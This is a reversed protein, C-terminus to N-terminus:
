TYHVSPLMCGHQGHLGIDKAHIRAQERNDTDHCLPSGEQSATRGTLTRVAHYLVASNGARSADEAEDAIRSYWATEDRRLQQQKRKGVLRRALITNDCLRTTRHEAITGLTEDSIWKNEKQRSPGACGAHNTERLGKGGENGLNDICSALYGSEYLLAFRNHLQLVVNQQAIPDILKYVAIPPVIDQPLTCGKMRLSCTAVVLRHDTNDGYDAISGGLHTNSQHDLIWVQSM